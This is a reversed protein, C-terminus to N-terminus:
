KYIRLDEENEFYSRPFHRLRVYGDEGGSAFSRGDPNFSISNIPGFHGIVSGLEEEYISHYFRVQFQETTAGSMTVEEAREGGGMVVHEMLPSIDACNIPRGIDFTKIVEMNRIDFLKAKGDKSATVFTICDKDSKISTIPAEHVKQNSSLRQRETDYVRVSGDSNCTIITENNFGWIGKYIKLKDTEEIQFLIKDKKKSVRSIIDGFEDYLQYVQIMAQLGMVTDTIVLFKDDGHSFKVCRVVIDSSWSNIETGNEAEWLKVTCDASGSLLYKSSRDVDISYIAGRHGNFTGIREGSDTWWVFINGEKDCSFLLDGDKNFIVDTVPKGHKLLFTSMKNPEETM